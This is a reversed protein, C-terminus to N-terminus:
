LHKMHEYFPQLSKDIFYRQCHLQWTSNTGNGNGLNTNSIGFIQGMLTKEEINTSTTVLGLIWTKKKCHKCLIKIVLLM